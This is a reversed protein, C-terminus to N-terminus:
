IEEGIDEIDYEEELIEEVDEYKDFFLEKNKILDKKLYQEVNKYKMFHKVQEHVITLRETIKKKDIKLKGIKPTLSFCSKIKDGQKNKYGDPNFRIFIIKRDAFGTFLENIRNKECQKNYYKHQNEDIELILVHTYCEKFYDPRRNNCTDQIVTDFSDWKFKPYMEKYIDNILDQKLVRNKIAVESKPNKFIYCNTCNNGNGYKRNKRIKKCLICLGSGGCKECRAKIEGHECRGTGCKKCHSKRNGHECYGTGCKKCHSIQKGHECYGTGCKKCQSKRNGHECYGIGCEKCRSKINGHKCCGTGCKKCQSKINGHECSTGCQKCRLKGNGHKCRGTGCQKCQSQINGHECYGIRCEKCRSKPNGHKCRGTGCQKCRIEQNGHECYGTGCERCRIKLNGHECYGTGCERCRTKQNGHECKYRCHKCINIDKKKLFLNIEKEKKCKSCVKM